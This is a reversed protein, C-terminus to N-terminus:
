IRGTNSKCISVRSGTNVMKESLQGRELLAPVPPVPPELLTREQPPRPLAPGLVVPGKKCCSQEPFVELLQFAPPRADPDWENPRSDPGLKITDEFPESIQIIYEVALSLNRHFSAGYDTRFYQSWVLSTPPVVARSKLRYSQVTICRKKVLQHDTQSEKPDQVIYSIGFDTLYLHFTTSEETSILVNTPKIDEYKMQSVNTFAM